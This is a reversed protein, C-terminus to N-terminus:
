ASASGGSHRYDRVPGRQSLEKSMMEEQVEALSDRKKRKQFWRPDRKKSPMGGSPWEKGMTYQQM